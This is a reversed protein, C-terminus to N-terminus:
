IRQVSNSKRGKYIEHTKLEDGHVGGTYDTRGKILLAFESELNVLIQNATKNMKNVDFKYEDAEYNQFHNNYVSHTIDYRNAIQYRIFYDSNPYQLFVYVTPLGKYGNPSCSVYCKSFMSGSIFFLLVVLFYRM